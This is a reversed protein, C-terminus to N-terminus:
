RQNYVFPGEVLPQQAQELSDMLLWGWCIGIVRALVSQSDLKAGFRNDWFSVICHFEIMQFLDLV